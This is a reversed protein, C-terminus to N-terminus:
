CGTRRKPIKKDQYKPQNCYSAEVLPNTQEAEYLNLSGAGCHEFPQDPM